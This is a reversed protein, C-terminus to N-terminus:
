TPQGYGIPFGNRFHSVDNNIVIKYGKILEKIGDDLTYIPKWGTSEIKENSVLYNRKDPDKYYESYTVAFDPIYKKILEVVQEKSFNADSLGVNFPEGVFEDYREIMFIFTKLVDKIHIYNRVNKSEFVTLYRDTLAKYVFENVLLDTRMRQSMGFVTALRLTISNGSDLLYNEADCKTIGYHSVPKMGDEERCYLDGNGIGYGSNTNPFIVRQDKSINDSIFKIQEYNIQTALEKDGDCAPFGVIAALPIIIDVKQLYKKLYEQNRVDSHIFHFKDDICLDLLSLQKYMLNDYSYVEYGSKLLESCLGSGLYGAGGTVLVKMEFEGFVM